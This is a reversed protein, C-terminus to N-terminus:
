PYSNSMKVYSYASFIVIVAVSLFTLPCLSGTMKAMQGTLAFIGAVIMVGTGLAVAGLLALNDKDYHQTRDQNKNM